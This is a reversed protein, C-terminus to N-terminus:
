ATAPEPRSGADAQTFVEVRSGIRRAERLVDAGWRQWLGALRSTIVVTDVCQDPLTTRMGIHHHATHGGTRAAHDLLERDFDVLVAPPLGEPLVGGCGLVAIRDGLEAGLISRGIQASVDALARAERTWAELELYREGWRMYEYHESVLIGLEIAPEPFKRLLYAMNEVFTSWQALMDREHPWEIIWAEPLYRLPVGVRHLRLAFEQDEIGWKAFSEDFGGAAWFDQARLSCNITYFHRWPLPVRELDFGYKALEVHRIDTLAPNEGFRELVKQPSILSLAKALVPGPPFEPNYGWAYGAVAQRAAPDAHAALHRRVFDPGMMAGADVFLLLPARALRAGCNRALSVRMGRDEQYHYTLRLRGAFSDVMTRTDDRSGDDSVIVEFDATPVDQRALQNLMRRVLERRNYTPIIVSISPTGASERM